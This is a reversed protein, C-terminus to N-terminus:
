PGVVALCQLISARDQPLQVRLLALYANGSGRNWIDSKKTLADLVVRQAADLRQPLPLMDQDRLPLKARREPFVWLLIPGWEFDATFASARQTILHDMADIVTAGATTPSCRELLESLVHFRLHMDRHALGQPFTHELWELDRLARALEDNSSKVGRTGKAMAAGLRIRRDADLLLPAVNQGLLDLGIIASLWVGPEFLANGIIGELRDKANPANPVIQVLSWWAAGAARRVHERPHDLCHAVVPAAHAVTQAICSARVRCASFYEKPIEEQVDPLPANVWVEWVPDGPGNCRIPVDTSADPEERMFLCGEALTALGGLIAEAAPHDPSAALLDVLVWIVPPSASYLSGQHLISGWLWDVACELEDSPREASVFCRLHVPADRAAAYAHALHDWPVGDIAHMLSERSSVGLLSAM